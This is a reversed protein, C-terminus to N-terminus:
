ESRKKSGEAPFEPDDSAGIIMVPHPARLSLIDSRDGLNMVAGVHNCLCGNNPQTAMSTAYCVPVACQIRDDIAFAYMTAVGGGSAGTIGVKSVDCDGRSTLYD